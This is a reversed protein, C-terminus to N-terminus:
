DKKNKTLLGSIFFIISLTIITLFMICHVNREIFIGSQWNSFNAKFPNADDIEKQFNLNNVKIFRPLIYVFFNILCLILSTKILKNTKLLKVSILINLILFVSASIPLAINLYWHNNTYHFTYCDIVFLLINLAVFDIGITIFVRLKKFKSFLNYRSIYIPLFILTLGFLISLTTIFFWDGRTYIACTALLLCLSLFSSLPIFILRHKKIIKPLNTFTFSLLLASLVIWFWNLTHDIALNCIFCPILALIYSIYFFLSWSFSLTRWKKAQKQEERYKNDVSATILEHETIDLINSLNPLLSIDPRAVGKEWKSIASESIILLKALEKQTLNKELRKQKLFAGFDSNM